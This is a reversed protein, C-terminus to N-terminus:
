EYKRTKFKTFFLSLIFLIIDLTVKVGIFNSSILYLVIGVVLLNFLEYKINVHNNFIIKIIWGVVNSLVLFMPIVWLAGYVNYTKAFVLLEILYALLTFFIYSAFMKYVRISDKVPNFHSTKNDNIYITDIIVEKIPIDRGKSEILVNTEYEYREGAVDILEKAVELSMARLGTQTDSVRVGVLSYLVNRTLVNGFKSRRPVLKDSFDRVGLVLSDDNEKAVSAVHLIDKVSHQGDCDASVIVKCKPYNNLIYNIGNKLGRGKGLNVNHKIVPYKEELSEMYKKHKKSCGDNIFVINKFKKTLEDLFKSMIKEDPNYVPILVVVDKNM